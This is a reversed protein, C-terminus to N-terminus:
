SCTVWRCQLVAFGSNFWDLVTVAVRGAICLQAQRIVKCVWDHGAARSVLLSDWLVM